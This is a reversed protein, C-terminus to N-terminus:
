GQLERIKQHRRTDEKSRKAMWQQHIRDIQEADAATGRIYRQSAEDSMATVIHVLRDEDDTSDEDIKSETSHDCDRSLTDANHLSTGKVYKIRPAYPMVDYLIKQLRAPATHLPKKFISELPKHDTEIEIDQGYIFQHFKRCGFKVALAEKEIQPFLQNRQM